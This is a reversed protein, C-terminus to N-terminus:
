FYGSSVKQDRKSCDKGQEVTKERSPMSDSCKGFEILSDQDDDRLVNRAEVEELINLAIEQTCPFKMFTRVGDALSRTCSTWQSLERGSPDELKYGRAYDEESWGMQALRHRREVRLTDHYAALLRDLLIKLEMPIADYGKLVMAVTSWVSKVEEAQDKTLLLAAGPWHQQHVPDLHHHPDYPNTSMM